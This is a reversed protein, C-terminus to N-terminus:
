HHIVLSSSSRSPTYNTYSSGVTKCSAKFSGDYQYFSINWPINWKLNDIPQNKLSYFVAHNLGWSQSMHKSIGSKTYWPCTGSFKINQPHLCMTEQCSDQLCIWIDIKLRHWLYKNRKLPTKFYDWSISPCGDLSINAECVTELPQDKVTLHLNGSIPSGRNMM